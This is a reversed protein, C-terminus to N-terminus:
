APSRDNISSVVNRHRLVRMIYFEAARIPTSFLLVTIAVLTRKM